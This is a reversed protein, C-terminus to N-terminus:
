RKIAALRRNLQTYEDYDDTGKPPATRFSKLRRRIQFLEDAEDEGLDEEFVKRASGIAKKVSGGKAYKSLDLNPDLPKPKKKEERRRQVEDAWSAGPSVPKVPRDTSRRLAALSEKIGGGKSKVVKPAALAALLQQLQQELRGVAALDQRPDNYARAYNMLLNQADESGPVKKLMDFAEQFGPEDSEEFLHQQIGRLLESTQGYNQGYRDTHLPRRDVDNVGGKRGGRGAGKEEGFKAMLTALTKLGAVKGGEAYKRKVLSRGRSAGSYDPGKADEATFPSGDPWVGDDRAIEWEGEIDNHKNALRDQRMRRANKTPSLVRKVGGGKAFTSLKMDRGRKEEETEKPPQKVVRRTANSNAKNRAIASRIQEATAQIAGGKSYKQKLKGLSM